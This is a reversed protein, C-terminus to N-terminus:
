SKPSLAYYAWFAISARQSRITTSGLLVLLFLRKQVFPLQTGGSGGINTTSRHAFVFRRSSSHSGLWGM